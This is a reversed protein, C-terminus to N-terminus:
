PQQSKPLEQTYVMGNGKPSETALCPFGFGADFGCDVPENKLVYRPMAGSVTFPGFFAEFQRQTSSLGAQPVVYAMSRVLRLGKLFLASARAGLFASAAAPQATTKADQLVLSDGCFTANRTESHDCTAFQDYISLDEGTDVLRLHFEANTKQFALDGRSTKSVIWRGFIKGGDLLMVTDYHYRDNAADHGRSRDLVTILLQSGDNLERSYHFRVSRAAPWEPDSAIGPLSVLALGLVLLLLGSRRMM